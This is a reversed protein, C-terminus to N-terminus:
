AAAKGQILDVIAKTAVSQKRDMIPGLKEMDVAQGQKKGSKRGAILTGVGTLISGGITMSLGAPGPIAAGGTALAGGLFDLEDTLDVSGAAQVEALRVDLDRLVAHGLSRTTKCM